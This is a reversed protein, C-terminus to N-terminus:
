LTYLVIDVECIVVYFNFELFILLNNLMNCIILLILQHFKMASIPSFLKLGEIKKLNQKRKSNNVEIDQKDLFEKVDNNNENVMM